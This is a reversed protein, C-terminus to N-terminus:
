SPADGGNEERDEVRDAERYLFPIPSDDLGLLEKAEGLQHESVFLGVSGISRGTYYQMVYDESLSQKMVPIGSSFLLAALEDARLQNEAVYLRAIPPEPTPNISRLNPRALEEEPRFGPPLAEVTAAGCDPCLEFGERYEYGCKPCWSM